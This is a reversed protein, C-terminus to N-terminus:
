IAPRARQQGAINLGDAGGFLQAHTCGFQQAQQLFAFAVRHLRTFHQGFRLAQKAQEAEHPDADQQVAAQRVWSRM